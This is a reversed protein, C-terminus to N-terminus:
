NKSLECAPRTRRHEPLQLAEWAGSGLSSREGAVAIAKKVEEGSKEVSSASEREGERLIRVFVGAIEGMWSM